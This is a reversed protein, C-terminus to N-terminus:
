KQRLLGNERRIDALDREAGRSALQFYSYCPCILGANLHLIVPMLAIHSIELHKDKPIPRQCLKKVFGTIILKRRM